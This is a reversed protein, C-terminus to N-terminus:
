PYACSGVGGLKRNAIHGDMRDFFAPHGATVEDLEQRTPLKGSAWMTHDWGAGQLWEGAPTVKAREAIRQKMEDLSRVGDLDVNLLQRGGDGFHTHADNFGPMVFKGHLDVVTTKKGKYKQIEDNSGVAIFHSDKVAFAQVRQSTKSDGAANPDALDLDSQPAAATKYKAASVYVNGNIYISDAPETKASTKEKGAGMLSTASLLLVLIARKM